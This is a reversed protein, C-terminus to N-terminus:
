ILLYILFLFMALGWSYYAFGITTSRSCIFRILSLALYAGIFSALAALLAGLLSLFTIAGAATACGYVDFCLMTAMAPISLLLCLELAYDKRAGRAIGVSYMCGLRSFGPLMGLVGSLGMLIGDFFTFARGDKDGSSLLRPLFLIVGNAVLMLTLWTTSTIWSLAKQYILFGFLLPWVAVNLIRIDCLASRDPQRGRRRKGPRELKKEYRLRKIYKSCGLLLAALCGAHIALPLLADAMDNGILTRYLVQHASASTFILESFGSVLAFLVKNLIDLM